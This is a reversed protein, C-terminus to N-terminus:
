TRDMSSGLNDIVNYSLLFSRGFAIRKNFYQQDAVQQDAILHDVLQLQDVFM